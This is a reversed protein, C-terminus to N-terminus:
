RDATAPGVWRVDIDSLATDISITLRHEAADWNESYYADGRRVLEQGDFSALFSDKRVRVGLGRPLRLTLSGIGMRVSATADGQWEGTFDLTIDGVGGEVRVREANLNGLGVAHFEAAGVKIEVSRARDPNPRSFRLSTESAGTSVELARIRLGGLEVDAEVAGFAMDLDLAPEPGLMLELRGGEDANLDIGRRGDLGVRLRGNDYSLEPRFVHADYRLRAHYLLGPRAPQIELRGAGYEVDVEIREEGAYQRTGTVTRWDQASAPGAPLLLALLIAFSSGTTCAHSKRGRERGARRRARECM